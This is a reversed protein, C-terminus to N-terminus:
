HYARVGIFKKHITKYHYKNQNNASIDFKLISWKNHNNSLQYIIILYYEHSYEHSYDQEHNNKLYTTEIIDLTLLFFIM